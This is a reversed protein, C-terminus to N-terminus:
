RSASREMLWHVGKDEVLLFGLREYLKRAPNRAEVHIRVPLGAQDAEALIRGILGTGIGRGRFPPLLAIDVIRIEDRGKWVCLRGAPRGEAIVIRSDADHFHTRYHSTRARFQMSLFAEKQPESWGSGALEGERTSDFLERLFDGHAETEPSLRITQASAIGTM